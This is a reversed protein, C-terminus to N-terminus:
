HSCCAVISDVQDSLLMMVTERVRAEPGETLHKRLNTYVTDRKGGSQILVEFMLRRMGNFAKSAATHSENEVAWAMRGCAIGALNASQQFTSMDAINM